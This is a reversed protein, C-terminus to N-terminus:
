GPHRRELTGDAFHREHLGGGLFGCTVDRADHWDDAPGGLAPERDACLGRTREVHVHDVLVAPGDLAALDPETATSYRDHLRLDIGLSSCVDGVDRRAQPKRDQRIWVPSM